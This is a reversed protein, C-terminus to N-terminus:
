KNSCERRVHYDEAAESPFEEGCFLCIYPGPNPESETESEAGDTTAIPAYEDGTVAAFICSDNGIVDDAEMNENPGEEESSSSSSSSSTEAARAAQERREDRIRRRAARSTEAAPVEAAETEAAQKTAQEALWAERRAARRERREKEKRKTELEEATPEFMARTNNEPRALLSLLNWFPSGGQRLLTVSVINYTILLLNKSSYLSVEGSIFM